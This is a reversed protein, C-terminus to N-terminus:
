AKQRFLKELKECTQSRGVKRIKGETDGGQFLGGHSHQRFYRGMMTSLIIDVETGLDPGQSYTINSPV